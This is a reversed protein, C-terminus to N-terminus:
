SGSPCRLRPRAGPVWFRGSCRASGAIGLHECGDVASCSRAAVLAPATTALAATMTRSAM